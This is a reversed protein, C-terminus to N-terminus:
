DTFLELSVGEVPGDEDEEVFAAVTDLEWRLRAGTM